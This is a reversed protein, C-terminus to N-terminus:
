RSFKGYEQNGYQTNFSTLFETTYLAPTLYALDDLGVNHLTLTTISSNFPLLSALQVVDARTIHRLGFEKLTEKTLATPIIEKLISDQIWFTIGKAGHTM